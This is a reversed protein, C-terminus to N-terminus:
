QKTPRVPLVLYFSTGAEPDTSFEVRGGLYEEALLKMGWTGLGRGEGKTTFCRRFVQLQVARDMSGPNHVALVARGEADRQTGISVAAGAPAAELANKLMNLLIRKVLADDSVFPFSESFPAILVARGEAAQLGEAQRKVQLALERSDILTRQARLTGNEASVMIKQGQIEEELADCVTSARDLLVSRREEPLDGRQLLELTVRLSSATNLIDHFFIRELAGRRRLHSIDTLSLLVYRGADIQFSTTRVLLERRMGVDGPGALHCERVATEGTEQTRTIAERAGCFACAETDGCGRRANRCGLAEGPRLGCLEEVGTFGTLERFAPNSFIVQRRANLIALAAPIAELASSEGAARLRQLEALADERSVRGPVAPHGHTIM